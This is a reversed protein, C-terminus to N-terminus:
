GNKSIQLLAKTGSSAVPSRAKIENPGVEDVSADGIYKGTKADIFRLYISDSDEDTFGTGYITIVTNGSSPGTKPTFRTVLPPTYFKFSHLGSRDMEPDDIDYYVDPRDKADTAIAAAKKPDIYSLLSEGRKM